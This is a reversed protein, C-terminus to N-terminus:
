TLTDDRAAIVRCAVSLPRFLAAGVSDIFVPVVVVGGDEARLRLVLLGPWLTSGAMLEVVTSNESTRVDCGRMSAVRTYPYVTLRIQGVGSIDIRHTNRNKFLSYILVLAALASAGAGTLPWAFAQQRVFIMWGFALALAGFGALLLRLCLSRHVVVTVAISM